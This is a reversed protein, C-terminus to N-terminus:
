NNARGGPEVAELVEQVERIRRTAVRKHGARIRSKKVLGEAM